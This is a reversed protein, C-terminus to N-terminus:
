GISRKLLDMKRGPFTHLITLHTAFLTSVQDSAANQPTQCQNVSNARSQRDLYISYIRYNGISDEEWFDDLTRGQISQSGDLQYITM